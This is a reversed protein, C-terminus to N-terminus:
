VGVVDIPPITVFVEDKGFGFGTGRAEEQYGVGKQWGAM